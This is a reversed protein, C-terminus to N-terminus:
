CDHVEGLLRKKQEGSLAQAISKRTGACALKRSRRRHWLPCTSHKISCINHLSAFPPLSARSLPLRGLCPRSIPSSFTAHSVTQNCPTPLHVSFTSATQTSRAKHTHTEASTQPLGLKTSLSSSSNGPSPDRCAFDSEPEGRYQLRAAPRSHQESGRSKRRSPALIVQAAPSPGGLSEM